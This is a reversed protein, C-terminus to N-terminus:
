NPANIQTFQYLYEEFPLVRNYKSLILKEAELPRMAKPLLLNDPDMAYGLGPNIKIDRSSRYHKVNYPITWEDDNYFDNHLYGAVDENYRLFSYGLESYKKIKDDLWTKPIRENHITHFHCYGPANGPKPNAQARPFIIYKYNPYKRRIVGRLKNWIYNMITYSDWYDVLERTKNGAFTLIFHFRLENGDVQQCIKDHLDKKLHPRCRACSYQDCTLRLLQNYRLSYVYGFYDKKCLYNSNSYNDQLQEFSINEFSENNGVM